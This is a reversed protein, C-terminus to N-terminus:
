ETLIEIVDVVSFWWKKSQEDWVYRICKDEFIKIKNKRDKM